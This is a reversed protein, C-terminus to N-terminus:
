PGSSSRVLWCCVCVLWFLIIYRSLPSVVYVFVLIWCLRVCDMKQSESLAPDLLLRNTIPHGTPDLGQNGVPTPDVGATKETSGDEASSPSEM